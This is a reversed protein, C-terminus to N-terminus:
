RHQRTLPLPTRKQPPRVLQGQAGSSCANSRNGQAGSSCADSRNGQAGCPRTHQQPIAPSKPKPSMIM